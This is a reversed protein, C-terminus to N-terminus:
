IGPRFVNEEGLIDNDPKLRGVQNKGELVKPLGNITIRKDQM